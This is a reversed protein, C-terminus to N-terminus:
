WRTRTGHEDSDRQTQVDDVGGPTVSISCAVGDPEAVSVNANVRESSFTRALETM